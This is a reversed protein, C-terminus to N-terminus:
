CVRSPLSISYLWKWMDGASVLLEKLGAAQEGQNGDTGWAASLTTESEWNGALMCPSDHYLIICPCLLDSVM